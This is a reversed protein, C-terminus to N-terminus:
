AHGNAETIPNFNVKTELRMRGDRRIERRIGSTMRAPQPVFPGSVRGGPESLGGSNPRAAGAGTAAGGAVGALGVVGCSSLLLGAAPAPLGHRHIFGEGIAM